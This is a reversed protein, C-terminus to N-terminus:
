RLSVRETPQGAKESGPQGGQGPFEILFTTGEGLISKVEIKGNLSDVIRKVIALGLGTGGTYSAAAEKVFTSQEYEEFLKKINEPYIGTGTDSVKLQLGATAQLPSLEVQVSGKQTFKIANSLLNSLLSRFHAPDTLVIEPISANIKIALTLGKDEFFPRFNGAVREVLDVLNVELLSVKMKGSEMKALDLINNILQALDAANILVRKLWSSQKETVQGNKGTLVLSTFGVISNLPNKLEHSIYSFFRNRAESIEAIRANKQQLIENMEKIVKERKKRESIDEFLAMMGKMKQKADRLLATSISVDILSGDKRQRVTEFGTFATGELVRRSLTKFEDRKHEPVIPLLQGLVEKAEWGFVRDAAPNWSKVIGNRDLIIIALPSAKIVAQLTEYLDVLEVEMRKQKTIDEVMVIAFQPEGGADRVLSVVKKGWIVAGDKSLYRKEIQYSDQKGSFLGNFLAIDATIDEPHTVVDFKKNILEERGCGLMKQLADNAEIIEREANVCAIGIAAQNFIARFRKESEQLAEEVKKRQTRDRMAGILRVPEGNRNLVLYGREFIDAYSGDGRQFRYEDSWSNGKKNIVANIGSSIRSRDDPHIHDYWWGIVPEIQGASHGFRDQVGENWWVENTVLNWDWIVDSTARTVLNFREESERLKKEIRRQKGINRKLDTIHLKLELQSLIQAALRQLGDVQDPDLSRASYDAVCLAGLAYRRRVVLPVGAYFRLYPASIVLPNKSFRRDARADQVVFCEPQLIAHACFSLDRPSESLSLGIASKIWQRDADIFTILAIPTRCLQSALQAIGDFAQEPPIWFGINVSRPLGRPKM